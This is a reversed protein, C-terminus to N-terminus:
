YCDPTDANITSKRSHVNLRGNTHCSQFYFPGRDLAKKTSSRHTLQGFLVQPRRHHHRQSQTVVCTSGVCYRLSRCATRLHTTRGRSSGLQQDIQWRTLPTTTLAFQHPSKVVDCVTGGWQGRERRRMAVEAVAMQGVTSQSRAELYVTTALCTQDALPQPLVSMLWLLMSLKM